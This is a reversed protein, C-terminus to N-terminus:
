RGSKLLIWRAGSHVGGVQTTTELYSNGGEEICHKGQALNLLYDWDLSM